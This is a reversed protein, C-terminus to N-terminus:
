NERGVIPYTDVYCDQSSINGLQGIGVLSIFLFFFTFLLGSLINPTMLVFYVGSYDEDNENDKDDREGDEDELRRRRRNQNSSSTKGQGASASAANSKIMLNRELDIESKSRVSTLIVSSMKPSEIAAHVAADLDSVSSKHGLHVIVLKRHILAHARGDAQVSASAADAAPSTAELEMAPLKSTFEELTTTLVHEKGYLHKADRTVSQTNEIGRVFHHVDAKSAQSAVKPLSGSTTLKTLGDTYETGTNHNILFLVSSHSSDSSSTTDITSSLLHPLETLDSSHIPTSTSSSTSSKDHTWVM